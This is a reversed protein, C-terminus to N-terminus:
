RSWPAGGVWGQLQYGQGLRPAPKISQGQCELLKIEVETIQALGRGAVAKIGEALQEFWSRGGVLLGWGM